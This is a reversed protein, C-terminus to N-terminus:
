DDRKAWPPILSALLFSSLCLAIRQKRTLPRRPPQIKEIGEAVRDWSLEGNTYQRYLLQKKFSLDASPDKATVEPTTATM